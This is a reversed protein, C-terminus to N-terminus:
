SATSAAPRIARSTVIPVQHRLSRPWAGSPVTVILCAPESAKVEVVAGEREVGLQVQAPRPRSNRCILHSVGSGSVTREAGVVVIADVEAASATSVTVKDLVPDAGAVTM